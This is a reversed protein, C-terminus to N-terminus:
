IKNYRVFYSDCLIVNFGLICNERSSGVAPAGCLLARVILTIVGNCNRVSGKSSAAV